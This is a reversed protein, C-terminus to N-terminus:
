AAPRLPETKAYAWPLLDDIQGGLHGNVIKALADALYAYPDVGCLSSSGM